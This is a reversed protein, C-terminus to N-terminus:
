MDEKQIPFHNGKYFKFSELRKQLINPIIGQLLLGRIYQIEM